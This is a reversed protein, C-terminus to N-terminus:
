FEDDHENYVCSTLLVSPFHSKDASPWRLSSESMIFSGARGDFFSFLLLLLLLLSLGPELRPRGQAFCLVVGFLIDILFVEETAAAASSSVRNNIKKQKKKNKLLCLSNKEGEGGREKTCSLTM